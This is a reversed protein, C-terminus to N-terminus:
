LYNNSLNYVLSIILYIFLLFQPLSDFSGYSSEKSNGAMINQPVPPSSSFHYRMTYGWSSSHLGSQDQIELVGSAEAVCTNCNCRHMVISLEIMDIRRAGHFEIEASGTVLVVRSLVVSLHWIALVWSIIKLRYSKVWAVTLLAM